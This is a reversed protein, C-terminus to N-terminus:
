GASEIVLQYEETNPVGFMQLFVNYYWLITFGIYCLIFLHFVHLLFTM